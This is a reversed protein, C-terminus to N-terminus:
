IEDAIEHFDDDIKKEYDKLSQFGPTHNLLIGDITIHKPKAPFDFLVNELARETCYVGMTGYKYLWEQQREILEQPTEPM